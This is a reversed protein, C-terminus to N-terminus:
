HRLLGMMIEKVREPTIGEHYDHSLPHHTPELEFLPRWGPEQIHAHMKLSLTDPYNPIRTSLWSFMSPLEARNGDDHMKRLKEFNERSLSGWVGWGLSEKTGIIPLKILGRIFFDRGEIACYNEDLFTDNEEDTKDTTNEYKKQWYHPADYGFDLCPGTHWEECTGCKWRLDALDDLTTATHTNRIRAQQYCGACLLQIKLLKESEENWGGHAARVIECDDCWADPSPNGDSPDDRNFGLGLSGGALHSCVYTPQTSGHRACQIKDAM